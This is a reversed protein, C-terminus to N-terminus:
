AAAARRGLVAARFREPAMDVFSQVGIGVQGPKLGAIMADLEADSPAPDFWRVECTLRDVAHHGAGGLVGDVYAGYLMCESFKRKRGIVAVWHRGHVQEMRACMGLITSRKWATFQGVYDHDQRLSKEIGLADAAHAVWDMHDGARVERAGHDHRYFRMADGVWMDALDYPRVFATDSDCYLLGDDDILGAIAIRKIQQVHWGVLPLTRPGIWVRRGGPSLPSPVRRLWWPLLETETIIRRRPGELRRFLPADITDVLLYHMSYGTVYRDISECLIACREFDPAHSPTVIANTKATM